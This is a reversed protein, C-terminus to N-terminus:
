EDVLRGPPGSPRPPQPPPPSPPPPPPPPEPPPEPTALLQDLRVGTIQSVRRARRLSVGTWGHKWRQVTMRSVELLQALKTDNDAEPAIEQCRREVVDWRLRVADSSHGGDTTAAVTM